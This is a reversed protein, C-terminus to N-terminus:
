MPKATALFEKRLEAHRKNFREIEAQDNGLSKREENVRKDFTKLDIEAWRGTGMVNKQNDGEAGKPRQDHNDDFPSYGKMKFAM